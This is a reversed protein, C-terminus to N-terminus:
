GGIVNIDVEYPENGGQEAQVELTAPVSKVNLIPYQRVIMRRFHITLDVRYLWRLKLLSPVPLPPDISTVTFGQAMLEERNQAIILGDYLLAAVKDADSGAGLGYISCLTPLYENRQIEDYANPDDIGDGANHGVYPFTDTTRDPQFGFAMWVEGAEPINPPEPQWRPLVETDRDLGTIAALVDGIFDELAAGELPAPAPATNPVLYGGTASTNTM